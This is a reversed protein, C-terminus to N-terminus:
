WDIPLAVSGFQSFSFRLPFTNVIYPEVFPVVQVCNPVLWVTVMACFTYTPSATLLRLVDEKAVTVNSLTERVVGAGGDGFKEREVEKLLMVIVCPATLVFVMVIVGWNPKLPLTVKDAEPRGAPTVAENLGLGVAVVLVRVRVAAPVATTPVNGTVILPVEPLKVFVAAIERM